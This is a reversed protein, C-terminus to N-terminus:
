DLKMRVVGDEVFTLPEEPSAGFKMYVNEGSDGGIGVCGKPAKSWFQVSADIRYHTSRKLGDIPHKIFMFLDDGHHRHGEGESSALQFAIFSCLVIRRWM